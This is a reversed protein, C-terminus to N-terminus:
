PEKQGQSQALCVRVPTRVALPDSPGLSGRCSGRLRAPAGRGAETQTATDLRTRGGAQPQASALAAVPCICRVARRQPAPIESNRTTWGRPGTLSNAVGQGTSWRAGRDMPNELCSCQLPSGNGGGPSRGSEPISGTDGANCASEEGSLRWPLGIIKGTTICSHCFSSAEWLVLLQGVPIVSRWSSSRHKMWLAHAGTTKKGTLLVPDTSWNMRKWKEEFNVACM